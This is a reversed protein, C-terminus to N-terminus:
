EPWETKRNDTRSERAIYEMRLWSGMIGPDPVPSELQHQYADSQYYHERLRERNDRVWTTLTFPDVRTELYLKAHFARYSGTRMAPTFPTRIM